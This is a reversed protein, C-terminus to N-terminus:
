RCFIVWSSSADLQKSLADATTKMVEKSPLAVAAPATARDIVFGYEFFASVPDAEMYQRFGDDATLRRLLGTADAKTASNSVGALFTGVVDHSSEQLVNSALDDYHM